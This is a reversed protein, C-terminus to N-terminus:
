LADDHNFDKLTFLNPKDIKLSASGWALRTAKAAQSEASTLIYCSNCPTSCLLYQFLHHLTSLVAQIPYCLTAFPLNNVCRKPVTCLGLQTDHFEIM